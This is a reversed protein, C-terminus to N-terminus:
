TEAADRGLVTGATGKVATGAVGTTGDVLRTTGAAIEAGADGIAGKAVAAGACGSSGATVAAVALAVAANGAVAEDTNGPALTRGACVVAEVPTGENGELATGAVGPACVVPALPAADVSRTTVLPGGGGEAPEVPAVECAVRGDEVGGVVVSLGGAVDEGGALIVEAKSVPPTEVDAVAGVVLEKGELVLRAGLGSGVKEAGM